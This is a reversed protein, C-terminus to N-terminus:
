NQTPVKYANDIVLVDLPVNKTKVLKLGLQKELAVFITPLGTPDSASDSGGRGAFKPLNQIQFSYAGAFEMTFDFTGSLRTKDVVRPRTPLAGLTIGINGESLNIMGRNGLWDALEAMTMRNTSRVKGGGVSLSFQSGPELPPFGKNDTKMSDAAQQALSRDKGKTTTDRDSPPSAADDNDPPALKMKPGGSAVVLDYGAVEKTDHHYTLHFRDALLNQLMLRFEDRSTNPPIKAVVSYHATGVWAPASIQDDGVGYAKTILDFLTTLPYTIQGPDATGPGGRERYDGGMTAPPAVKVSAADFVPQQALCLDVIICSVIAALPMYTRKM